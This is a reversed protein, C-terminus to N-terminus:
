PALSTPILIRYKSYKKATNRAALRSEAIQQDLLRDLNITPLLNKRRSAIEFNRSVAILLYM